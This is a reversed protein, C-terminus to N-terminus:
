RKAGKRRKAWRKRAEAILERELRDIERRLSGLEAACGNPCGAFRPAEDRTWAPHRELVHGCELELRWFREYVGGGPLATAKRVPVAYLGSTLRRGIM